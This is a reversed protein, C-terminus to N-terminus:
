APPGPVIENTKRCPAGYPELHIKRADFLRKMADVFDQKKINAAKAEQEQAFVTPAYLHASSKPSLTESRGQIRKLLTLFLEEAKAQHAARDLSTAGPVPLFLGDRYRLV